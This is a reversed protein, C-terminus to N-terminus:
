VRVSVLMFTLYAYIDVDRSRRHTTSRKREITAILRNLNEPCYSAFEFGNGLYLLDFPALVMKSADSAYRKSRSNTMVCQYAIVHQRVERHRAERSVSEQRRLAAEVVSGIGDGRCDGAEPRRSRGRRRGDVFHVRVRVRVASAVVQLSEEFGHCVRARRALQM